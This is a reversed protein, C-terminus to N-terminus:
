PQPTANWAGTGATAESPGPVVPPVGDPVAARERPTLLAATEIADLAGRAAAYRRALVIWKDANARGPMRSVEALAADVHGAQLQNRARALRDEPAPSPTDTRRVIVLGAMERRLAQWWNEDPAHAMLQPAISDLAAQLEDLTVPQHAAGIITAVAQPQDGGFRDRLLTEIYGLAVGRDLARRAAFAVLLGEARDANGVAAAARADIRDIRTELTAVRRDIAAQEAPSTAPIVTLPLPPQGATVTAVPQPTATISGTKLFAAATDWHTLAYGMAITGAVFGFLILLLARIMPRGRRAVSAGVDYDTDM